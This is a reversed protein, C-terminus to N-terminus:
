EKVISRIIEVAERAYDHWTGPLQEIYDPGLLERLEDVAQQASTAAELLRIVQDTIREDDPMAHAPSSEDLENEGALTQGRAEALAEDLTHSGERVVRAMRRVKRALAPEEKIEAVLQRQDDEELTGISRLAAETLGLPRAMEQVDPALALVRMLKKRSDPSMEVGLKDLVQDWPVPPHTPIFGAEELLRELTVLTQSQPQEQELLETIRDKLDLEDANAVLWSIKLATAQDLPNLDQRHLNEVVRLTHTKRADLGTRIQCLVSNWGALKAARVRREGAVVVYRSDACRRVIPPNVIQEDGESGLSAALGELNDEADSRPNGASFDIQDIPIWELTTSM